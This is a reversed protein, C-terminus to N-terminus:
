FIKLLTIIINRIRPGISVIRSRESSFFLFVSWSKSVAGTLMGDITKPLYKAATVTNKIDRSIVPIKGTISANKPVTATACIIPVYMPKKRKPLAKIATPRQTEDIVSLWITEATAVNAAM